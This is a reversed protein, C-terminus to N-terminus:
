EKPMVYYVNEEYRYTAGAARCLIRLASELPVGNLVMTVDGYKGAGIVISSKTKRALGKIAESLSADTLDVSVTNASRDYEVIIDTDPGHGHGFFQNSSAPLMGGSMSGGFGGGGLTAIQLNSPVAVTTQGNGGFGGPAAKFGNTTGGFGAGGKVVGGQSQGAANGGFGQTTTGSKTRESSSAVTIAQGSGTQFLGGVIPLDGLIPVKRSASVTVSSAKVAPVLTTSGDQATVIAGKTTFDVTSGPQVILGGTTAPVVARAKPSAPIVKVAPRPKGLPKAGQPAKKIHVRLRRAIKPEQKPKVAPKSQAQAELTGGLIAGLVGLAALTSTLPSVRPPAPKPTLIRAIRNMLNSEKASLTPRPLTLRREELHLLARAYPMPDSHAVVVDDCCHERERRVVASVWWVAPHYFLVTEVVAQLLNVLYDHRRVHALEHLLITEVQEPPLQMILSTPLVVVTKLVGWASPVHIRDSVLLRVARRIGLNYALADIRAQWAEDAPQTHRRRWRELHLLTGALRMSLLIVGVMWVRVLWPLLDSAASESYLLAEGNTWSKGAVKTTIPLGSTADPTLLWFTLAPALALVAMAFCAPAYRARATDRKALWLTAALALAIVAGEWVFHILTWGLREVFGNAV